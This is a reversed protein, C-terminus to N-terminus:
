SSLFIVRKDKKECERMRELEAIDTYENIAAEFIGSLKDPPLADLEWAQTLGTKQYYEKFNNDQEKAPFPPLNLETIQELTLGIRQLRVEAGFMAFREQIVQPIKLGSPDHDGAYLIVANRKEKFREAAEHM